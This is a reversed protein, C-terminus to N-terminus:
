NISMEPTGVRALNTDLVRSLHGDKWQVVCLRWNPNEFIFVVTGRWGGVDDKSAQQGTNRLWLASYAVHDGVQIPSSM